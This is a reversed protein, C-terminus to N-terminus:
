QRSFFKLEGKDIERPLFCLGDAYIENSEVSSITAKAGDIKDWRNYGGQAGHATVVDGAKWNRWDSMDLDAVGMVPTMAPILAFGELALRNILADRERTFEEIYADLENVTDRWRLPGDVQDWKAALEDIAQSAVTTDIEVKYSLTGITTDKVDVEEAQPQSIIRYKMIDFSDGNHKWIGNLSAVSSGEQATHHHVDFVEGDRHKTSVKTGAKVPCLGGRHRKWEGGTQRDREAQWQVRTVVPYKGREDHSKIADFRPELSELSDTDKGDQANYIERDVASQTLHTVGKPWEEMEKALIEVLRAM